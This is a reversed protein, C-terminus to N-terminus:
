VRLGAGTNPRPQCIGALTAAVEEPVIRARGRGGESARVIDALSLVGVVQRDTDVVPLRRIQRSRMLREASEVSDSPGCVSLDTSMVASVRLASPASDQMWTAMCIDRDTIMGVLRGDDDRVPIAGCDCDWMLKAVRACTDDSRCCAVDRTMLERVNM